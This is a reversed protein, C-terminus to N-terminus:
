VLEVYPKESPDALGFGSFPRQGDTRGPSERVSVAKREVLAFRVPGQAFANQALRLLLIGYAGAGQLVAACVIRWARAEAIRERWQDSKTAASEETITESM